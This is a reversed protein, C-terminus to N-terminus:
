MHATALITAGIKDCAIDFGATKEIECLGHLISNVLANPIKMNEILIKTSDNEKDLNAYRKDLVNRNRKMFPLMTRFIGREQCGKYGAEIMLAKMEHLNYRKKHGSLADVTTFLDQCAPVTVFIYCSDKAFRKISKLTQIPDDLHELVDFFCIADFSKDYKTPLDDSRGVIFECTPYRANAKDILVEATDVGTVKFGQQMLFGSVAGSGCGIELVRSKQSIGAKKFAALIWANRAKHWFHREEMAWLGQLLEPNLPYDDDRHHSNNYKIKM